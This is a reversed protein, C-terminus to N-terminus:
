VRIRMAKRQVQNSLSAALTHLSRALPTSDFKRSRPQGESLHQATAPDHVVTALVPMGLAKGIEAKGYPRGEGVVILGTARDHSALRMQEKFSSAHVRASMVSRLNSQLVLCTLSAYELLQPPLGQGSLRGADIIVDMGADDLRHLAEALDLWVAGFLNASGPKTFGPLFLRTSPGGATLPITQDVLVERLPRGDRHAEAVRLLGKGNASQGALFGALVSQHAGPDCDALLVSRPWALALGVALTTVGPSSCTSTLIVIAM